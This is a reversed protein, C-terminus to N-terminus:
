SSCRSSGHNPTLKGDHINQAELFIEFTRGTTVNLALQEREIVAPDFEVIDGLNLGEAPPRFVILIGDDSSAGCYGLM